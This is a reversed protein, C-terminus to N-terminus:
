DDEVEEVFEAGASTLLSKTAELDFKDDRADISIYFRDNTVRKFRESNFLPHHFRPLGNLALMGFVALIASLLITLEFIVPIFAQISWLPKGSILFPYGQLAYPLNEFNTANTYWTLVLGTSFGTFGGLLVIWPLITRKVGMDKDIGHIPFPSHTDWRSFGADRVKRTASCLADVSTFEALLGYLKNQTQESM